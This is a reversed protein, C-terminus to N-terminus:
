VYLYARTTATTTTTATITIRAMADRPSMMQTAIIIM